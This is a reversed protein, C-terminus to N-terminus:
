LCLLPVRSTEDEPEGKRRLCSRLLCYRFIRFVSLAPVYMLLVGRVIPVSPPPHCMHRSSALLTSGANPSGRPRPCRTRARTHRSHGDGCPSSFPLFFFLFLFLPCTTRITPPPAAFLLTTATTRQPTPDPIDDYEIDVRGEGSERNERGGEGGSFRWRGDLPREGKTSGGRTAM